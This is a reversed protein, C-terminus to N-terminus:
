IHYTSLITSMTNNCLRSLVHCANGTGLVEDRRLMQRTLELKDVQEMKAGLHSPTISSVMSVMECGCIEFIYNIKGLLQAM